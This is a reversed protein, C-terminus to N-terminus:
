ANRSRLEPNLAKAEQAAAIADNFLRADLLAGALRIHSYYNQPDLRVARRAATQAAERHGLLGAFRAFNSQVEASGPALALARDFESAACGFTSRANAFWRPRWTRRAPTRRSHSQM